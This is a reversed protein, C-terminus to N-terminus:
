AKNVKKNTTKVPFYKKLHDVSVLIDNQNSM